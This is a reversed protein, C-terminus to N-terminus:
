RRGDTGRLGEGLQGFAEIEFGDNKIEEDCGEFEGEVSREVSWLWETNALSRLIPLFNLNFFFFHSIKCKHQALLFWKKSALLKPM